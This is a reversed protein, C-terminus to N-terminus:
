IKPKNYVSKGCIAGQASHVSALDVVGYKTIQGTPVIATNQIIIATKEISNSMHGENTQENGLRRKLRCKRHFITESRSIIVFIPM